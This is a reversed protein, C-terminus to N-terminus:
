RLCLVIASLGSSRCSGSPTSRSRGHSQRRNIIEQSGISFFLFASWQQSVCFSHKFQRIIRADRNGDIIVSRVSKHTNRNCLIVSPFRRDRNQINKKNAFGWFIPLLDIRNSSALMLCTCLKLIQKNIESVRHLCQLQNNEIHM